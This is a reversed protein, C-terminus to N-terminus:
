QKGNKIGNWKQWVNGQMKSNESRLVQTVRSFFKLPIRLVVPFQQFNKFM